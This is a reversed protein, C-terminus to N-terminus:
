PASSRRAALGTGLLGLALLGASGPEPVAFRVNDFGIGAPDDNTISVGAIDIEGGERAFGYLGDSLGTLTVSEILSGDRRYFDFTATGANAGLIEIGFEASDVDLLISFAGEGNADEAPFGAAGLGSVGVSGLTAAVLNQSAAGAVLSLPGSPLGSLTDFLGSAGLTQGAFREAYASGDLDVVGDFPAGPYPPAALSEFDELGTVSLSAYPTLDIPTAGAGLPLLLAV